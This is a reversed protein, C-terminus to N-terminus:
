GSRPPCRSTLVGYAMALSRSGCSVATLGPGKQGSMLDGMLLEVNFGLAVAGLEVVGEARTAHRDHQDIVLHDAAHIGGGPDRGELAVLM